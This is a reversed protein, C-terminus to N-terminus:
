KEEKVEKEAEEQRIKAMSNRIINLKRLFMMESEYNLNLKGIMMPMLNFDKAFDTCNMFYWDMIFRDERSLGPPNQCPV